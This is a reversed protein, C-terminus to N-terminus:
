NIPEKNKAKLLKSDKMINSRIKEYEDKTKILKIDTM